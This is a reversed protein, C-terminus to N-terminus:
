MAFIEAMARGVDDARNLDPSQKEQQAMMAEHGIDKGRSAMISTSLQDNFKGDMAEPRWGNAQRMDESDLVINTIPMKDLTNTALSCTDVIDDHEGDPFIEIENMMAEHDYSGDVVFHVLGADAHSSFPGAALVKAIPTKYGATVTTTRGRSKGSSPVGRFRSGRFSGTRYHHIAIKGGSGPEQEMVELVMRTDHDATMQTGRDNGDPNKRWRRMDAIYYNGTRPDRGMLLGVTYDPDLGPQADTGAMDWARVWQIGRDPLQDRTIQKFWSRKFMRGDPRINWDGRLLQARTVVDLESLSEKYDEEDLKPNDSLVAPHFNRRPRKALAKKWKEWQAIFRKYVWEHGIGGPNTTSRIRIPIDALPGEKVRRVRSFLYRYDREKQQTLEDFGVFHYAGGQYKFRDNENDLAGFTISSHGGGPCDFIYQHLQRDFRIGPQGGWWKEAIDMLAGPKGLDQYSKRLILANYGPVHLFQSAAMLLAISKGGGAAGGYLAEKGFDLLFASQPGPNPQWPCFPIKLFRNALRAFESQEDDTLPNTDLDDAISLKRPIPPIVRPDVEADGETPFSM